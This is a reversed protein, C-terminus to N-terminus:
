VPAVLNMAKPAILERTSRKVSQKTHQSGTMKQSEETTSATTAYPKTNKKGTGIILTPKLFLLYATHM